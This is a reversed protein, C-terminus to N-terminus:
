INKVFNTTQVVPYLINFLLQHGAINPHVGDVSCYVSADYANSFDAVLVGKNAVVTNIATNYAARNNIRNVDTTPPTKCLIIECEPRNIRLKDIIYELNAQYTAVPVSNNYCDNMGVQLTVLDYNVGLALTDLYDKVNQSTVGGYGRNVHKIMGYDKNIAQWVKYAYLDNGVANADTPITWSISDGFALYVGGKRM